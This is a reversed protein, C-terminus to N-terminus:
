ILQKIRDKSLSLATILNHLDGILVGEILEVAELILECSMKSFGRFLCWFSLIRQATAKPPHQGQEQYDSSAIQDMAVRWSQLLIEQLVSRDGVLM